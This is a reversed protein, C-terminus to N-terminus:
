AVEGAVSITGAPGDVVRGVIRRALQGDLAEVLADVREPPVALLLGGSTQADCLVARTLDSADSWSVADEVAELNRKSGGPVFGREALELAGPLLPVASADVEAGVGSARLMRHLHGLLGFGTVDTCARIGHTTAARAAEDNLTTMSAIAAETTPEDAADNKIATTVIGTGIPKTLLLVDGPAARDITMVHENAVRGVVVLGYKPEPDDVSHGGVIPFGGRQAVERGGLLVEGLLELPLTERPWAVINLAVLPRGGMAYVDSAANTAAIRGWTFADDVLPTFFDLTLVLSEREDLKVIAADDAEDLGVLVDASPSQPGLFALVESLTDLSLKCACGAGHSYSTLKIRENQVTLAEVPYAVTKTPAESYLGTM